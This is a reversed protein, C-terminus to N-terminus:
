TPEKRHSNAPSPLNTRVRSVPRDRDCIICQADTRYDNNTDCDTCKWIFRAPAQPHTV